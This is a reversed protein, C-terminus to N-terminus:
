KRSRAVDCITSVDVGFRVALDSLKAGAARLRRM